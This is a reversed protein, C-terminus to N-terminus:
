FGVPLRFKDMVMDLFNNNGGVESPAGGFFFPEKRAM